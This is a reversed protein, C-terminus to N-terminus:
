LTLGMVHRWAGYADQPTAGCGMHESGRKHLMARCHASDRFDPLACFWYGFPGSQWIHPINV